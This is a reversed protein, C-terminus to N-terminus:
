GATSAAHVVKCDAHSATHRKSTMVSLSSAHLASSSRLGPQVWRTATALAKITSLGVGPISNVNLRTLSGHLAVAAVAEDSVKTCGHLSLVQVCAHWCLNVSEASPRAATQCFTRKQIM